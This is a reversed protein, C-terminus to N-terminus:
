AWAKGTLPNIGPRAQGFLCAEPALEVPAFRSPRRPQVQPMPERKPQPPVTVEGRIYADRQAAHRFFRACEGPLRSSVLFGAREARYLHSSAGNHPSADHLVERAVQRATVGQPRDALECIQARLTGRRADPRPTDQHAPVCGPAYWRVRSGPMRPAREVRKQAELSFMHSHVHAATIKLALQAENSSVGGERLAMAVLRERISPKASM